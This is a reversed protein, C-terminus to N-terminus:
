AAQGVPHKCLVEAIAEVAKSWDDAVGQSTNLGFVQMANKPSGGDRFVRACAQRAYGLAQHWQVSNVYDPNM